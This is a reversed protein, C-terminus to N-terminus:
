HFRELFHKPLKDKCRILVDTIGGDLIYTVSHDNVNRTARGCAQVLTNLMKNEYWPRDLEFLKKIRKNGLPLYPLKIIVQFRALDDKLDVGYSLSPSVLVTPDKFVTHKELIDENNDKDNRFLFRHNSGLKKQLFNCIDMSHTHIIGKENKHHECIKAVEEAIMPLLKNLNNYNIRYKSAVYIPSKKADFTSDVEIYEYNTIGLTKAYHKHDIITASMLLVKDAYDFLNHSLNNVKLPTLTVGDASRDVVYECQTWSEQVTKVSNLLNRLATLKAKDVQSLPHKSKAVKSTITEIKNDIQQKIDGVWPLVAEYADSLLPKYEIGCYKLKTYIIDASFMKVLEEELESAEDCIIINKHKIHDPLALFMKYNYASFPALLADNRANYYPCKNAKWCDDKLKPLFLCPATDVDFNNDIACDYNSKGKLMKTEKFSETYQNQLAKTITLVAAGHAPQQRCEKANSFGGTYEIRFADYTRILEVFRTSPMKAYAQLTRALFSKGSGTPANCIVFKTGKAFAREIRELTNVQNETPTYPHPFESVLKSM